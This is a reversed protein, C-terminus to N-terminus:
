YPIFDSFPAKCVKFLENTIEAVLAEKEVDLCLSGANEIESPFHSTTINVGIGIIVSASDQGDLVSECLIGCVKKGNVYVDNVWKIEPKEDTLKEVARCVAVSAATTVSVMDEDAKESIVLSLYIGTNKPSYFSKGQRGRGATQESAVVLFPPKEGEKLLRKAQTNTSDITPYYFLECDYKFGAKLKETNLKEFDDQAM